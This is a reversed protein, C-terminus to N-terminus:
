GDALSEDAVFLHTTGFNDIVITPRVAATDDEVLPLLEFWFVM